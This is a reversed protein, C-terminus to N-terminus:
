IKAVGGGGRQGSAGGRRAARPSYFHARRAPRSSATLLTFHGSTESHSTSSGHCNTLSSTSHLSLPTPPNPLRGLPATRSCFPSIPKEDGESPKQTSSLEPRCLARSNTFANPSRPPSRWLAWRWCLSIIKMGGWWGSCLCVCMVKVSSCTFDWKVGFLM